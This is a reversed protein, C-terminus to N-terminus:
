VFCLKSNQLPLWMRHIYCSPFSHKFKWLNLPMKQISLCHTMTSVKMMLKREQWGVLPFQWCIMWYLWIICFQLSKKKVFVRHNLFFFVLLDCWCFIKTQVMYLIKFIETSSSHLRNKSGWRYFFSRFGMGGCYIKRSYCRGQLLWLISYLGGEREFYFLIRIFFSMDYIGELLLSQLHFPHREEWTQSSHPYYSLAATVTPAPLPM